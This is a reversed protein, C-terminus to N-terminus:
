RLGKEELIKCIRILDSDTVTTKWPYSNLLRQINNIIPSGLEMTLTTKYDEDIVSRADLQVAVQTFGVCMSWLGVNIEEVLSETDNDKTQLEGTECAERIISAFSEEVAKDARIMKELWGKSARQLIAKSNVLSGLQADFSHLFIKEKCVLNTAILREPTPLPLSQIQRFVNLLNMNMRYALAVLVDEKFQIHKYISGMSLCSEKSIASMTFDLLSSGEICKAAADLILTEQEQPTHTPAPSMEYELPKSYV